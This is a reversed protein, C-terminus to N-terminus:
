FLMIGLEAIPKNEFKSNQRYYNALSYGVSGFLGFKKRLQYEVNARAQLSYMRSLHYSNEHESNEIHAFGLDASLAWKKNLPWHYGTRYFLAGSFKDDLGRYYLGLGIISYLHRNLFRLAWNVKTLNSGSFMLQTRTIPSINVLGIKLSTTDQSANIAGIQVGRLKSGGAMNFIGIQVGQMNRSFNSVGLQIGRMEKSVINNMGVQLLGNGNLAINTIAVQVGRVTQTGINAMSGMQVGYINRGYNFLSSLQVGSMKQRSVNSIASLQLGKMEGYSINSLANIQVGHVGSHAIDLLGISFHRTPPTGSNIAVRAQPFINPKKSISDAQSLTNQVVCLCGWLLITKLKM